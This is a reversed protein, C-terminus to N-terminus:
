YFAITRQMVELTPVDENNYWRLFDKLSNMHEHKWIQQLYQYNVIEIPCPKSLKLRIVVQEATLGSELRNVNDTYEYRLPNYILLKSYFANYRSTRYEANQWPSRVIGLSIKKKTVSTKCAKLFSDFSTAGDRFNMKDLLHIDVFNFM